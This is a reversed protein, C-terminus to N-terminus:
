QINYYVPADRLWKSQPHTDMSNGSYAIEIFNGSNQQIRKLVYCRRKQVRSRRVKHNKGYWVKTTNHRVNSDVLTWHRVSLYIVYNNLHCAIDTIFHRFSRFSSQALRYTKGFFVTNRRGFSTFFGCFISISTIRSLFKTRM